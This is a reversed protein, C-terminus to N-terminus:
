CSSPVKYFLRRAPLNAFRILGTFHACRWYVRRPRGMGVESVVAISDRAGFRFRLQWLAFRENLTTPELEPHTTPSLPLARWDLIQVGLVVLMSFNAIWFEASSVLHNSSGGPTLAPQRGYGSFAPVRTGDARGQPQHWRETPADRNRTGRRQTRGSCAGPRCDRRGSWAPPTFRGIQGQAENQRLYEVRKAPILVGTRCGASPAERNSQHARTQKRQPIARPTHINYTRMLRAALDQLCASTCCKPSRIHVKEPEVTHPTELM